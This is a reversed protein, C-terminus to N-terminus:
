EEERYLKLKRIWKVKKHNKMLQALLYKLLILKERTNM